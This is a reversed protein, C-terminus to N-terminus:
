CDQNQHKKNEALFPFDNHSDHLEAPYEVDVELIYGIRQVDGVGDVGRSVWELEDKEMWQFKQCPLLQCMAWSYLNNAVTYLLYSTPKEPDVPAGTYANNAIAHQHVCTTIGGRIGREIFMYMDYDTLLELEVKTYKLMVDFSFGPSTFYHACDLNYNRLCMDRFCEFVNALLLVDTKLYLDSYEELTKCDFKECVQQAHEYAEDSIHSDTLKSFFEEKPPLSTEELKEWSDCYKYPFVGKRSVLELKDGFERATHPLVTSVEEASKVLNIVPNDLSDPTFRFTNIFQPHLQQSIQKTFSIYKESTNPIVTLQKKNTELHPIISHTDFNSSNHLFVSIFTTCCRQLNCKSCLANWYVVPIHCHDYVKDGNFPKECAECNTAANHRAKERKFLPIMKIQCHNIAEDLDRAHMTLTKIFYEAADPGRYVIPEKPILNILTLWSPSLNKDRVFYLCYSMATHHQIVKTAKGIWQQEEEPKELPCEFDAYAVLPLRFKNLHKEFKMTPPSGDEKLQPMIIRATKNNACYEEHDTM